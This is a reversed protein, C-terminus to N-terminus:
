LPVFVLISITFDKKETLNAQEIKEAIISNKFKNNNGIKIGM